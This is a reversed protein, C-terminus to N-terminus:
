MEDADARRWGTIMDAPGTLAIYGPIFSMIVGFLTVIPMTFEYTVAEAVVTVQLGGYAFFAWSLFGAIGLVIAWGDDPVLVVAFTLLVSFAGIFLWASEIM